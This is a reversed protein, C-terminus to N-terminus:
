EDYELQALAKHAARRLRMRLADPSKGERKAIDDWSRGSLKQRALRREREPMERLLRDLMEGPSPETEDAHDRDPIQVGEPLRSLLVERRVDRRQTVQRRQWDRIRNESMKVLLAVLQQPTELRFQGTAARVFFRGMVSQCIDMSDVLQRLRPQRMRIRVARRVHPEYTRVLEEAAAEDGSRVRQILETFSVANKM